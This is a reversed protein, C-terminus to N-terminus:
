GQVEARTSAMLREAAEAAAGGQYTRTLVRALDDLDRPRVVYCEVNAALLARIWSRQAPTTRGGERKLEVLVLRDRVLALDPWGPESRRSDFIHMPRRWGLLRALEVVQAQWERETLDALPLTVRCRM